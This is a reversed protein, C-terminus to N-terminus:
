RSRAQIWRLILARTQAGYPPQEVLAWGHDSGAYLVIKKDALGIMGLVSLAEPRPARWDDRTGVYLFPASIRRVGARHLVAVEHRLVLLEIDEPGNVPRAPGALRLDARLGPLASPSVCAIMM